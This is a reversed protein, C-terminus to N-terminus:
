DRYARADYGANRARDAASQWAKGNCRFCIGKEVLEGTSPALHGSTGIEKPAETGIYMGNDCARGDCATWDNRDGDLAIKEAVMSEVTEILAKRGGVVLPRYIKAM